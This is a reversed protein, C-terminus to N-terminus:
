WGGEAFAYPPWPGSVVITLEAALAARQLAVRYPVAAGRPVLHYISGALRGRAHRECREGRVWKKVAIRLPDAGPIQLEAARRQLFQRGQTAGYEYESDVGFRSRASDSSARLQGRVSDPASAPSFIRVTM